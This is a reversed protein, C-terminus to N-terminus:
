PLNGCDCCIAGVLLSHRDRSVDEIIEILTAATDPARAAFAAWGCLFLVRPRAGQDEAGMLLDALADWNAGFWDPWNLDRQFAQMMNAKDDAVGLKVTAADIGIATLEAAIAGPDVPGPLCLLAEENSLWAKLLSQWQASHTM